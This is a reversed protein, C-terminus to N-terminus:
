TERDTFDNTADRSRPQRSTTFIWTNPRRAMRSRGLLHHVVNVVQSVQAAAGEMEGPDTNWLQVRQLECHWWQYQAATTAFLGQDAKRTPAIQRCVLAQKEKKTLWNRQWPGRKHKKGCHCSYFLFFEKSFDWGSTQEFSGLGSLVLVVFKM